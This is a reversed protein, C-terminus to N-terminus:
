RAPRNILTDPASWHQMRQGSGFRPYASLASDDADFRASAPAALAALFVVSAIIKVINSM